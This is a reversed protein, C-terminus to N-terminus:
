KSTVMEWSDTLPIVASQDNLCCQSRLQFVHSVVMMVAPM